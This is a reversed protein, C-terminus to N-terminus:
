RVAEFCVALDGIWDEFGIEMKMIHNECIKAEV